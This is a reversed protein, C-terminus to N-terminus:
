VHARGIEQLNDVKSVIGDMPAYVTAHSLDLAAQDVQAQAQLVLPHQDTPIEPNGGLSALINAIQQQMAAVGQQATQLDHRAADFIATSVANAAVLAKNREFQKQQYAVTDEAAQLDAQKQRYSARLAEIQLRTAALNATAKELAYRYPRDDLKFLAQGKKVPENDQVNIETVRGAVDASLTVKDAKVYADDTSVYRAGFLYLYGGVIAIAIPVSAM